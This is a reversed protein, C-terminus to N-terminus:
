SLAVIISGIGIVICSGLYILLYCLSKDVLERDRNKRAFAQDICANSGYVIQEQSVVIAHHFANFSNLSQDFTYSVSLDLSTFGNNDYYTGISSHSEKPIKKIASIIAPTM